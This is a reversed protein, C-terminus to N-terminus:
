NLFSVLAEDSVLTTLVIFTKNFFIDPNEKKVEVTAGRTSVIKEKETWTGIKELGSSGLELIELKLDARNGDPDFQIEGSLGKFPPTSRMSNFISTGIEFFAEPDECDIGRFDVHQYQQLINHYLVLADYRLATSLQLKEATLGEPLPVSRKNEKYFYEAIQIMTENVFPDNPIVLRMGTINTSSYQFPVMNQAHMDLSTIIFSYENTIIGVQQAQVLIEHLDESSSCLLINTSKSDRIRMFTPRFNKNDTLDIERVTIM